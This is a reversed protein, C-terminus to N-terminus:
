VAALRHLEAVVAAEDVGPLTPGDYSNWLSLARAALLHAGRSKGRAEQTLAAAYQALAQWAPRELPPACRWRQEYVEHAHFPRGSALYTAAESAATSGDVFSREPM